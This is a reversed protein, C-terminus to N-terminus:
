RGITQPNEFVGGADWIQKLGALREYNGLWYRTGAARHEGLSPDAYNYYMGLKKRENKEVIDVFQNVWPIGVDSPYTATTGVSDGLEWLLLSSRHAYSTSDAPFMNSM